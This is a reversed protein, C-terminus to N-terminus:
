DKFRAKHATILNNDKDPRKCAASFRSDIKLIIGAQKLVQGVLQNELGIKAVMKEAVITASQRSLLYGAGGSACGDSNDWATGIYDGDWPETALRDAAVFTDDDCKFLYDWDPLAIAWQCFARIRCPLFRYGNPVPLLLLDGERKPEQVEMATGLTGVLFLVDIGLEKADKVWTERCLALRDPYQIGHLIGIIIKRM